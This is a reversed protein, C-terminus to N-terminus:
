APAPVVPICFQFVLVPLMGLTQRASPRLSSDHRMQFGLWLLRHWEHLPVFSLSVSSLAIASLTEQQHRQGSLPSIPPAYHLGERAKSSETSNQTGPPCSPLLCRALTGMPMQLAAASPLDAKHATKEPSEAATRIPPSMKNNKKNKRIMGHCAAM